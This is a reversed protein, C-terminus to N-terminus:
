AQTERRDDYGVDEPGDAFQSSGANRHQQDLLIRLGRQRNGVAGIHHLETLEHQVACRLGDRRVRTDRGAIEAELVVAAALQLDLERWRWWSRVLAGLCRSPLRAHRGQSRLSGYRTINM